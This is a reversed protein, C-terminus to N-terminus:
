GQPARSDVENSRFRGVAAARTSKRYPRFESEFDINRRKGNQIFDNPNMKIENRPGGHRHSLSAPTSASRCGAPRVYTHRAGKNQQPPGPDPNKLATHTPARRPPAWWRVGEIPFKEGRATDTSRSDRAPLQSSRLHFSSSHCPYQSVGVNSRPM